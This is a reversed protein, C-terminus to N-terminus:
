QLLKIKKTKAIDNQELYELNRRIDAMEEYMVEILEEKEVLENL